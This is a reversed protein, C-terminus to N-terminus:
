SQVSECEVGDLGNETERKKQRVDPFNTQPEQSTAARVVSDSIKSWIKQIKIQVVKQVGQFFMKAHTQM